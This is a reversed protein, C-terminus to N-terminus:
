CSAIFNKCSHIFSAHANNNPDLLLDAFNFSSHEANLPCSFKSATHIGEAGKSSSDPDARGACGGRKGDWSKACAVGVENQRTNYCCKEADQRM